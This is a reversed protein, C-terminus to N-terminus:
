KGLQGRLAGNPFEKNHVNVYFDGPKQMLENLLAKDATACGKWAGDAGKTFTVKPPGSKGAAGAHIHAATPDQIQKVSIDYCLEGKDHNMTLIATGSGDSDGPGPVEAGGSLQITMSHSNATDQRNEPRNMTFGSVVFAALGMISVVLLIKRM